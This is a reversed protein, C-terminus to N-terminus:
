YRLRAATPERTRGPVSLMNAPKNLVIIHDDEYLIDVNAVGPLSAIAEVCVRKMSFSKQALSCYKRRM